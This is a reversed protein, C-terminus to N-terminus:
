RKRSPTLESNKLIPPRKSKTVAFMRQPTIQSQTKKPIPIPASKINYDPIITKKSLSLTLEIKKENKIAKLCAKELARLSKIEIFNSAPIFNFWKFVIELISQDVKNIFNYQIHFGKDNKYHIPEESLLRKSSFVEDDSDSSDSGSSDSDVSGPIPPLKSNFVSNISSAFDDRLQKAVKIEAYDNFIFSFTLSKSNITLLGNSHNKGSFKFEFPM